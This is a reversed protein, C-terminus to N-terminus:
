ENSLGNSLMEGMFSSCFTFVEFNSRMPPVAPATSAKQAIERASLKAAATALM